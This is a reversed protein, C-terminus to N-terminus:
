DEGWNTSLTDRQEERRRSSFSKMKADLIYNYGLEVRRESRASIEWSNRLHDGVRLAVEPLPIGELALFTNKIRPTKGEIEKEGGHLLDNHM